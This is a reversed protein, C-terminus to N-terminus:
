KHNFLLQLYHGPWAEHVTVIELFSKNFFQMLQKKQDEAMAPNPVNVYYYAESAEPPEYPGPTNMAAFGFKKGAEPMDVVECQSDTPIDVVDADILFQKTRDLTQKTYELLEEAAPYDNRLEELYSDWNYTDNAIKMMEDYNRQLDAEGIELLREVTTKVGETHELMELFREEGLAFNDHAKPMYVTQLDQMFKALAEVAKENASSWQSLLNSDNVQSVFTILKDKLYGHFGQLMM